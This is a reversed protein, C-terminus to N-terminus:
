RRPEATRPGHMTWAGPRRADSCTMRQTPPHRSFRQDHDWGHDTPEFGVGEASLDHRHAAAKDSAGDRWQQDPTLLSATPFVAPPKDLDDEPDSFTRGEALTIMGNVQLEVTSFISESSDEM